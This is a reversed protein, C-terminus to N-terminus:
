KRQAVSLQLKPILAFCSLENPTHLVFVTARVGLHKGHALPIDFYITGFWLAMGSSRVRTVISGNESLATTLRKEHPRRGSSEKRFFLAFFTAL